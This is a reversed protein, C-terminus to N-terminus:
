CFGTHKYIEADACTHLRWTHWTGDGSYVTAVLCYWIFYTSFRRQCSMGFRVMVSYDVVSLPPVQRWTAVLYTVSALRMKEMRRVAISITGLAQYRKILINLQYYEVRM